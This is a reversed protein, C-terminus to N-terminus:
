AARRATRRLKRREKPSTGGWCGDEEIPNAQAYDLCLEAVPCGRCIEKALDYNTGEETFFVSPDVGRCAARTIWLGPPPKSTVNCPRGM